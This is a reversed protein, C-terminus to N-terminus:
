GAQVAAGSAQALGPGGPAGGGGAEPDQSPLPAYLRRSRNGSGGGVLAHLSRSRNGSTGGARGGLSRRGPDEGVAAPDVEHRVSLQANSPPPSSSASRGPSRKSGSFTRAIGRSLNRKLSRAM